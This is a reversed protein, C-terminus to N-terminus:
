SVTPQRQGPWAALVTATVACLAVALGVGARGAARAPWRMRPEGASAVTRRPRQRKLARHRRRGRSPDTEPQEAAARPSLFINEAEKGLDAPVHTDSLSPM